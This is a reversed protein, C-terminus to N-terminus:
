LQDFPTAATLLCNLHASSVVMHKDDRYPTIFQKGMDLVFFIDMLLELLWVGDVM